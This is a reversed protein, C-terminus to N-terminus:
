ATIKINIELYDSYMQVFKQNFAFSTVTLKSVSVLIYGSKIQKGIQNYSNQAYHFEALFILALM